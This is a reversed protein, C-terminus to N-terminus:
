FGIEIGGLYLTTSPMEGSTVNGAREPDFLKYHSWVLPNNASAYVRIKKTYLKETWATPLTYGLTVTRLKIYGGDVYNLSSGYTISEQNKNPRPYANTPNDVTWYDRGAQPKRYPLRAPIAAVHNM